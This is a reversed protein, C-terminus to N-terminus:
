QLKASVGCNQYNLSGEFHGFIIKRKHPTYIEIENLSSESQQTSIFVTWVALGNIDKENIIYVVSNNSKSRCLRM